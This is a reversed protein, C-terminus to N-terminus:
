VVFQRIRVMGRICVSTLCTLDVRKKNKHTHTHAHKKNKKPTGKRKKKSTKYIQYHGRM